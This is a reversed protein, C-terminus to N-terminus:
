WVFSFSLGNPDPKIADVFKKDVILGKEKLLKVYNNISSSTLALNSAAESRATKDISPYTLLEAAVRMEMLTLKLVGNILQLYKFNFDANTVPIQFHM